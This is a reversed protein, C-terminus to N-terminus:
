SYKWSFMEQIGRQSRLFRIDQITREILNTTHIVKQISKPYKLFTLLKYLEKEWSKVVKPYKLGWRERSSKL